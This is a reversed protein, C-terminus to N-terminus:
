NGASGFDLYKWGERVGRLLVVLPPSVNSLTWLVRAVDWFHWSRSFHGTAASLERVELVRAGLGFGSVQLM